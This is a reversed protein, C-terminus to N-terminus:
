MAEQGTEVDWDGKVKNGEIEFRPTVDVGAYTMRASFDNLAAECIMRLLGAPPRNLKKAATELIMAESAGLRVTIPKSVLGMTKSSSHEDLLFSVLSEVSDTPSTHPDM